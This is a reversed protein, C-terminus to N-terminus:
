VASSLPVDYRRGRWLAVLKNQKAIFPINEVEFMDVGVTVVACGQGWIRGTDWHPRPYALCGCVWTGSTVGEYDTQFYSDVRHWHGVLIPKLLRQYISRGINVTNGSLRITDGHLVYLHGLKVQPAAFEDRQVPYDHHALYTIGLRECDLLDSVSVLGALEEAKRYLYQRLRHEHNGEIYVWHGKGWKRIEELQRADDLVESAFSARRIPPVPFRSIGFFDVIDGNLITVAPKAEHHIIKALELASPDAFPFHLDGMIFATFASDAHFILHQGRQEKWVNVM